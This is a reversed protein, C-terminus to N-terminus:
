VANGLGNLPMRFGGRPWGTSQDSNRGIKATRAPPWSDSFAIHPATCGSSESLLQSSCPIAVQRRPVAPFLRNSAECSKFGPFGFFTNPGAPGTRNWCLGSRQPRAKCAPWEKRVRCILEIRGVPETNGCATCVRGLAGASRVNRARDCIRRRSACNCSSALLNGQNSQPRVRRRQAVRERIGPARRVPDVNKELM